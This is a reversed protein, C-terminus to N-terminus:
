NKILYLKLILRTPTNEARYKFVPSDSEKWQYGIPASISYELASDVGSQKDYIFLFPNNLSILQNYDYSISITKIEGIKTNLWTSFIKKNWTNDKEFAAVDSDTEYNLKQYDIPPKIEREEGGTMSLLNADTKTLIQLYNQNDKQYWPDDSDPKQYEREIILKNKLKGSLNIDSELKIKQKIFLDSKGGGINANVIALYDGNFDTPLEAVEGTIQFDKLYNEILVDQFYIQIDKNILRYIIKKLLDKKQTEDIQGIKEFLKPMLVQLIKKPHGAKNDEGAEIEKQLV